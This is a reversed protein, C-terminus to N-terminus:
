CGWLAQVKNPRRPRQRRTTVFFSCAAGEDLSKYGSAKSRDSTFM